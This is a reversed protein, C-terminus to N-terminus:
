GVHANKPFSHISLLLFLCMYALRNAVTRAILLRTVWKWSFNGCRLMTLTQSILFSLTSSPKWPHCLSKLSPFMKDAFAGFAFINAISEDNVDDIVNPGTDGDRLIEQIPPPVTTPLLQQTPEQTTATGKPQKPRTSRIGHRPPKMHGKATATSPNLYRLILKESLNPCGKLFGKRVAKLLTSIKPNCLSQHAFKVANVRTRVSHTFSALAIAPATFDQPLRAPCTVNPPPSATSNNPFVTSTPIPLTWLDTSPDKYGRLIVKGQFVVDCKRDDFLVKCGAKCLPRIGILSAINLSPVIHGVLMTPLGPIQIDCIHTSHVQKGDPLNITLPSSAARKNDVAVGDMIFISTAGTDAIAQTTAITLANLYQPMPTGFINRTTAAISQFHNRSAPRRLSCNSTM